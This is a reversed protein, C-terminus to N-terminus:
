SAPTAPPLGEVSRIYDALKALQDLGQASLGTARWAISEVGATRLASVTRLEEADLASSESGDYFYGVPVGFATAIAGVLDASPNNRKGHRLQSIYSQM